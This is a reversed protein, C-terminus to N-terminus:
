GQVQVGKSAALNDSQPALNAPLPLRRDSLDVTRLVSVREPYTTAITKLHRAPLTSVYLTTEQAGILRCGPAILRAKRLRALVRQGAQERPLDPLAGNRLQVALLWDQSASTTLPRAWLRRVRKLIPDGLFEIYGDFHPKPGALRLTLGQYASRVTDKWLPELGQIPVHARSSIVLEKAYLNSTDTHLVVGEPTIQAQVAERGMKMDAGAKQLRESLANLAAAFGGKPYVFPSALGVTSAQTQWASHLAQERRGGLAAKGGVMAYLLLRTLRMNIRRDFIMGFDQGESALGDSGLLATFAANLHARNEILHVGLEVGDHDLMQGTRWSGGVTQARDVFAVKQGSEARRLGEFLVPPGTGIILADYSQDPQNKLDPVGQFESYERSAGRHVM